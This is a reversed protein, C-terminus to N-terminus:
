EVPDPVLRLDPRLAEDPLVLALLKALKEAEAVRIAGLLPDVDQWMAAEGAAEALLQDRVARLTEPAHTRGLTLTPGGPELTSPTFSLVVEVEAM